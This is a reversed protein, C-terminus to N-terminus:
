HEKFIMRNPLVRQNKVKCYVVDVQPHMAYAARKRAALHDLVNKAVRFAQIIQRRIAALIIHVLLHLAIM